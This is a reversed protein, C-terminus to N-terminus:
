LRFDGLSGRRAGVPDPHGFRDARLARPMAVDDGLILRAVLRASAPGTSIGWPGHGACMWLGRIGPVRGILPRGDRSQPRPCARMGTIPADAIGPVYTAARLLIPELWDAPRPEAELFTSGVSPAIAGPVLSFLLDDRRAAGPPPSAEPDLAATIEAQELVHRPGTPLAVEAVVGWVPRIPRWTGMPDILDCTWPGAAVLVDGAALLRGGVRVGVVRDGSVELSAEAGSRITVGAREALTAYGYTAAAPPVPYGTRVGCASLGPALAPELRTLEPGSLVVPELEPAEAAVHAAMAAVVTPEHGVYLLGAPESAMHFGVEAAALERYGALTDAHLAALVPDVPHQIAGSNAGSAAAALGIRDLLTVRAGRRGLEAAAATGVIGGGVVIVDPSPSEARGRVPQM